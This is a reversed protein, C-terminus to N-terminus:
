RCEDKVYLRRGDGWDAVLEYGALSTDLRRDLFDFRKSYFLVACTDGRAAGARVADATLYGSRIRAWSPDVLNPPPYRGAVWALGPDDTVVFTGAPLTELAAVVETHVSTLRQTTLFRDSGQLHFPLVAIAVVTTVAALAPPPRLAAFAAMAPAIFFVVFRYSGREMETGLVLFVVTAALWVLVVRRAGADGKPPWDRRVLRIALALLGGALFTLFIPDRRSMRAVSDAINPWWERDRPADLQFRVFQEWVHDLGWPLTVVLGLVIAAGAAAALQPWERRRLYLWAVALAAPLLFASKLAMGAGLLVGVVVPRWRGLRGSGLAVAVAWVACALALGDSHIPGAAAVGSASTGVVVGAVVALAPAERALRRVLVYVGLAAAIAALVMGVRVALFHRLGAVDFLWLLPLFLPGQSSFVDRFPVFGDRMALVSAGYVGEDFDIHRESRLAPIRMAVTAAVVAALGLEVRVRRWM